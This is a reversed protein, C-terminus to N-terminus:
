QRHTARRTATLPAWMKGMQLSRDPDTDRPPPQTPPSLAGRLLGGQQGNIDGLYEHVLFALEIQLHELARSFLALSLSGPSLTFPFASGPFAYALLGEKEVALSTIISLCCPARLSRPDTLGAQVPLHSLTLSFLVQGSTM